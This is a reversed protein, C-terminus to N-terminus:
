QDGLASFTAVGMVTVYRTLSRVQGSRRDPEEDTTQHPPGAPLQRPQLLSTSRRGAKLRVGSASTTDGRSSEAAPVGVVEQRSSRGPNNERFGTCKFKPM